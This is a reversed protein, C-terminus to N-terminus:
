ESLREMLIGVYYERVLATYDSDEFRRSFCFPGVQIRAENNAASAM